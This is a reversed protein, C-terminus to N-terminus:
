AETILPADLPAQQDDRMCIVNIICWRQQAGANLRMCYAHLRKVALPLTDASVEAQMDGAAALFCRYRAAFLPGLVDDAYASFHYKGGLFYTWEFLVYKVRRAEVLRRASRFVSPEHSEVDVKLYAVEEDVVDDLAVPTQSAFGKGRGDHHGAYGQPQEGSVANWGNFTVERDGSAVAHYLRARDLWGNLALSMNLNALHDAGAEIAVVRCGHALALLSYWRRPRVGHADAALLRTLSMSPFTCSPPLASGINAGVDVMLPSGQPCLRSFISRALKDELADLVGEKWLLVNYGQAHDL